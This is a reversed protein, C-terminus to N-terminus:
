RVGDISWAASSLTFVRIQQSKLKERKQGQVKIMAGIARASSENLTLGMKGKLQPQFLGDSTKPM